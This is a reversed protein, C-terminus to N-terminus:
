IQKSKHKCMFISPLKMATIGYHLGCIKCASKMQLYVM